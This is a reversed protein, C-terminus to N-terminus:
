EAFQVLKHFISYTENISLNKQEMETRLVLSRKRLSAIRCRSQSVLLFVTCLNKGISIPKRLTNMEKFDILRSIAEMHYGYGGDVVYGEDESDVEAGNRFPKM